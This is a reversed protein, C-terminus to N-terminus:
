KINAHANTKEIADVRVAANKAFFLEVAYEPVPVDVKAFMFISLPLQAIKGPFFQIYLCKRRVGCIFSYRKSTEMVIYFVNKDENYM